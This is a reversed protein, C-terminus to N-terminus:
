AAPGGGGQASLPERDVDRGAEGTEIDKTGIGGWLLTTRRGKRRAVVVVGAIAGVVIGAVGLWILPAWMFFIGLLVLGFGAVVVMTPISRPGDPSGWPGAGPQGRPWVEERPLRAWESGAPRSRIRATSDILRAPLRRQVM